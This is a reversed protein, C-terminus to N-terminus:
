EINRYRSSNAMAGDGGEDLYRDRGGAPVFSAVALWWGFLLTWLLNAPLPRARSGRPPPSYLATETNRTITRSQPIAPNRSQPIAPNRPISPKWISHSSLDEDDILGQADRLTLPDEKDHRLSCPHRSTALRLDEDDDAITSNNHVTGDADNNLEGEEGKRM